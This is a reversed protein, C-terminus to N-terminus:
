VKAEIMQELFSANLGDRRDQFYRRNAEDPMLHFVQSFGMMTLKAILREPVFRLLWPEGIAAFQAAFANALAVDDAPLAADAAVFSFVIESQAPASLVFRLSQDFAAETLYQSVGLMSFFVPNKLDLGAQSLAAMLSTKEFDIPVFCV